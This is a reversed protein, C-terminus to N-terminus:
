QLPTGQTLGGERTAPRAMEAFAVSILAWFAGVLYGAGVDSAYHVGLMVRSLGVLGILFAAWFAIEFRERSGRLDRAILYALTGYVAMAGTAHGSPFSPSLLREIIALEPRERGLARKGVYTTLESGVFAVWLPGISSKTNKHSAWLFATAVLVVGILAAGDGLATLWRFAAMVFPARLRNLWQNLARDVDVVSEANIVSEAMDGLVYVACLAAAAVLTLGLGAFKAPHLRARALAGARPYREELKLVVRGLRAYAGSVAIRAVLRRAARVLLRWGHWAAWRLVFIAAILVAIVAPIPMSWSNM